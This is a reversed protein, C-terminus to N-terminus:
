YRRIETELRIQNKIRNQSKEDDKFKIENVHFSGPNKKIEKLISSGMDNILNQNSNDYLDKVMIISQNFVKPVHDFFGKVFSKGFASIPADAILPYSMKGQNGIDIIAMIVALKKMRQFGESLGYLKNNDSDRIEISFADETEREIRIIGGHGSNEKTLNDYFVNAKKELNQITNDYIRRKANLAIQHLDEAIGQRATWKNLKDSNSLVKERNEIKELEKKYNSINEKYTKIETDARDIRQQAAGFQNLQHEDSTEGSGGLGSLEDELEKRREQLEKKQLRFEKDRKRADSVDEWIREIQNYFSQSEMQLRNLLTIFEQKTFFSKDKKPKTHANLVKQIHQWENSNKLAERGCVFCNEEKLMRTLSYSDPSGEPLKLFFSNDGEKISHLLTKENRRAIHNDRFAIFKEGYNGTGYLLWASQEKFFRDNLSNLLSAHETDLRESSTSIEDIEHRVQQRKEANRIFNFLKDREEKAKALNENARALAKEDRVLQKKLEDKRKILNDFEVANRTTKKRERTLDSNAKTLLYESLETLIEVKNINSLTDIADKLSKKNNFDLIDDVEEGQLLAYKWFKPLIIKAIIQRKETQDLVVNSDLLLKSKKAVITENLGYEWNNPDTISGKHVKYAYLSKEIEYDYEDDTFNLRVGCKIEEELDVENKKKDSIINVLYPDTNDINVVKRNKDTEDSDIVQERLIWLFGNFLKSKGAGNDAVIVNLGSNFEYTNRDYDGYYNYFNCLSISNIITAM